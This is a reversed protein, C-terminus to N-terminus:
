NFPKWLLLLGSTEPLYVGSNWIYCQELREDNFCSAAQRVHYNWYVMSEVSAGSASRIRATPRTSLINSIDRSLRSNATLRCNPHSFRSFRQIDSYKLQPEKPLDPLRRLLLM